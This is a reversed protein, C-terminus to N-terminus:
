ATSMRSRAIALAIGFLLGVVFGLGMVYLSSPGSPSTPETAPDTVTLSVPSPGSETRELAEVVQAFEEAVANALDAAQAPYDSTATIVIQSTDVPNSATIHQRVEAFPAEISLRDMVPGLVARSVAIDPYSKVRQSVFQSTGTSSSAVFVQARAEYTPASLQLIQAAIAVGLLTTAVWSLWHRRLAALYDKFEM